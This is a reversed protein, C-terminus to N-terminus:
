ASVRCRSCAFRGFSGVLAVRGTPTVAAPSPGVILGRKARDSTSAGIMGSPRAPTERNESRSANLCMPLHQQHRALCCSLRETRGNRACAFCAHPGVRHRAQTTQHGQIQVAGKWPSHVRECRRRPHATGKAPSASARPKFRYRRRRALALLIDATAASPQPRLYASIQAGLRHRLRRATSGFVGPPSWAM